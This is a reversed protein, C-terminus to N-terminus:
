YSPNNGMVVQWQQQTVEYKGIEFSQSITVEHVPYEDNEGNKSGMLFKGSEIKVFEGTLSTDPESDEVVLSSISNDTLNHSTLLVGSMFIALCIDKILM